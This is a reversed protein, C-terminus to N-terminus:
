EPAGNRTVGSTWDRREIRTRIPALLHGGRSRVSAGALFSEDSTLRGHSGSMASGIAETTALRQFRDRAPHASGRM